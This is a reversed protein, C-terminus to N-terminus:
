DFYEKAPGYLMYGKKGAHILITNTKIEYQNGAKLFVLALSDKVTLVTKDTAIQGATLKYNGDMKYSGTMTVSEPKGAFPALNKTKDFRISLTSKDLKTTASDKGTKDFHHIEVLDWKGEPVRVEPTPDDNDNCSAVTIAMMILAVFNTKM